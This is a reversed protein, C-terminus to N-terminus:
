VTDPFPWCRCNFTSGTASNTATTDFPDSWMSFGQQHVHVVRVQQVVPAPMPALKVGRLDRVVGCAWNLRRFGEETGGVDPHLTKALQKFAQHAQDTTIRRTRQIEDVLGLVTLAEHVEQQSYQKGMGAM